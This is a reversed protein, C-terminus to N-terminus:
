KMVKIYIFNTYSLVTETCNLFESKIELEVLISKNQALLQCEYKGSDRVQAYKIVLNWSEKDWKVSFRDDATYIM